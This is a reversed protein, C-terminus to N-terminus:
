AQHGNAGMPLAVRVTTGKDAGDSAISISGGYADVISKVLALGLGTGPIDRSRAKDVRYFREFVRPLDASPIGRGTDGITSVVRGGEQTIQWTVSGGNPTYKIANDLLNRFAVTLHSLSAHVPLPTPPADLAITIDKEGAQAGMQKQLSAALRTMDVQDDGLEARHADFRSLLTLDQILNGLRTVEGDIEEIYRRQTPTDLTADDLLAETRLRVTTLPTRLEHSTNSAFARQEELMNEVQKAMHNFSQAVEGIEDQEAYPVRYSLQGEALRAASDRLIYLPQIISRSLWLAAALALATIVGFLLLLQMWRQGIVSYLNSAPVSLQLLVAPERSRENVKAATYFTTEGTESQREVLITQGMMAAELESPFNTNGYPPAGYSGDGRPGPPSDAGGNGGRGGPPENGGGDPPPERRVLTLDGNIQAEYQALASELAATDNTGEVLPRIGRAILQVENQIGRQYDSVAGASIQSGAVLTLGGFGVLLISVFAMLLRTRISRFPLTVFARKM